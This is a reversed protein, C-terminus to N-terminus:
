SLRVEQFFAATQELCVVFIGKNSLLKKMPIQNPCTKKFFWKNGINAINTTTQPSPMIVWDFLEWTKVYSYKYELYINDEFNYVM